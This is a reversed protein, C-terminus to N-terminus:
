TFVWAAGITGFDQTSGALLTNGTTNLAVSAGIGTSAPVTYGTGILKTQPAGWVTGTRTFIYVAGISADTNGGVALTNGNGSLAVSYGCNAPTTIGSGILKAGQQTWVTGSRNFVWVAGTNVNDIYGGVAITNGNRSCSVSFGQNANGSYGTGVLKLGQQTWVGGTRTFIWTAGVGGNDGSGGVVLTNSDGSMAISSGQLPATTYGTGVLKAGQQTWTTGGSPRTFVWSAGINTRDVTSGYALTNSDASVVCSGAGSGTYGTGVLSAQQAWVNASRTFVWINPINGNATTGYAVFTNGDESVSNKNMAITVGSGVIKAGQQTWVTGNRTFVWSSTDGSGNIIATNGTGNLSVSNGFNTASSTYGTGLLKAGQQTTPFLDISQGSPNWNTISWSDGNWLLEASSFAENMFFSGRDMIIQASMSSIGLRIIKRLAAIGPAPLYYVGNPTYNQIVSYLIAINLTSGVTTITETGLYINLATRYDLRTVSNGM